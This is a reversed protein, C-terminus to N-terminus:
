EFVGFIEEELIVSIQEGAEDSVQTGAGKPMLVVDGVKIDLVNPGIATVEAKVPGTHLSEQLVGPLLVGGTTQTIEPVRKVVIRSGLPKYSMNLEKAVERLKSALEPRHSYHNAIRAIVGAAVLDEDQNRRPWPSPIPIFPRGEGADSLADLFLTVDDDSWGDMGVGAGSTYLGILLIRLNELTNKVQAGADAAAYYHEFIKEERDM